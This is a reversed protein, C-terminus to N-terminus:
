PSKRWEQKSRSGHLWKSVQAAHMVTKNVTAAHSWQEPALLMKPSRRRTLGYYVEQRLSIWYAVDFLGQRDFNGESYSSRIVANIINLFNVRTSQTTVNVDTPSVADVIDDEDEEMEEFQRLIIATAVILERHEKDQIQHFDRLAPICALMHETAYHQTVDHLLHGRYLIGQPTQYEPVRSLHRAATALIAHLLPPYHRAWIPM